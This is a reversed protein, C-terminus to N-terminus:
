ILLGVRRAFVVPDSTAKQKNCPGCTLQINRRHNSGGNHVAKIHDAHYRKGFPKRCYACRGKQQVLIEAIDSASHREPDAKKKARYNRVRSRAGDPNKLRRAETDEILRKANKAYWRRKSELVHQRNAKRWARHYAAEHVPDAPTRNQYCCFRCRTNCVWREALHGHRCLLGDFYRKLGADRADARTVVPGGYPVYELAM